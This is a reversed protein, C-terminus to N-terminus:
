DTWCHPNLTLLGYFERNFQLLQIMREPDMSEVCMDFQLQIDNYAANHILKYETVDSPLKNVVEMGLGGSPARPWEDKGQMLVNKRLAVGSLSLGRSAPSYQGTLATGLDIARPHRDRRRGASQTGEGRGELVVNGFLRKMENISSLKRPEIALLACLKEDTEDTLEASSSEPHERRQGRQISLDQLARDIEDLESGDKTATESRKADNTPTSKKSKKKKQKKKKSKSPQSPPPTTRPAEVPQEEAASAESEHDDEEDQAGLLDFANFKPPSAQNDLTDDDSAEAHLQQQEEQQRQLKRLARSSM